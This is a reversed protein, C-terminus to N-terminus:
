KEKAPLAIVAWVPYHDSATTTRVVGRAGAELGRLLIHDLAFQQGSLKRLSSSITPGAPLRVHTLGHKRGVRRLLTVEYDTITNFDRAVVAPRDGLGLSDFVAAAQDFRNEQDMIVTATHVSVAVLEGRPGLDVTAAVAIRRHGTLPTPHPLVEVEHAVIPWRSLVANGFLEAHHPHVAAARYVHNLGLSDALLAADEPAIEQVLLLDPNALRPHARLEDLATGVAEGYQINWSVVRLSDPVPVSVAAARGRHVPAEEPAYGAFLGCGASWWAATLLLGALLSRGVPDRRKSMEKM